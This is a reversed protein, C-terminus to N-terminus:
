TMTMLVSFPHILVFLLMVFHSGDLHRVFHELRPLHVVEPTCHLIDVKTRTVFYSNATQYEGGSAVLRNLM